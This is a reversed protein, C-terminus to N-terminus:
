LPFNAFFAADNLSLAREILYKRDSESTAKVSQCPFNSARMVGFGIAQTLRM